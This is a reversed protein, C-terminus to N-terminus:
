IINLSMAIVAAEQKTQISLKEYLNKKAQHFTGLPIRMEDAVVDNTKNSVLLKLLQVDQKTLRIGNYLPLKCLVGEHPCNGHMPCPWYEGDQLQNNKIDGQFDLGGFRCKAFQEVRKISSYPQMDHLALNVEKNKKIEEQMIEITAFPLETFDIVKGHQIAKMESHHVFFEVSNCAMGPLLKLANM